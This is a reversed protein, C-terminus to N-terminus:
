PAEHITFDGKQLPFLTPTVQPAVCEADQESPPDETPTEDDDPLLLFGIEDVPQGNVPPGNDELFILVELSELPVEPTAQKNPYVLRARNDDVVLCTVPGEQQFETIGLQDFAGGARFHGTVPDGGFGSFPDFTTPGGSAAFDVHQTATPDSPTGTTGGGVAFDQPGGAGGAHSASAVGPVFAVTFAAIAFAAVARTM